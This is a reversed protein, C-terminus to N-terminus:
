EELLSILIEDIAASNSQALKATLNPEVILSTDTLKSISAPSIEKGEEDYISANYIYTYPKFNEIEPWEIVQVANPDRTLDASQLTYHTDADSGIIGVGQSESCGVIVGLTTHPRIYRVTALQDLIINNRNIVIYSM